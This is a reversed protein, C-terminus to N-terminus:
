ELELVKRIDLLEARREKGVAPYELKMKELSQYILLAVLLRCYPKQDAPVVYWPAWPTSTHSFCDEYAEMYQDWLLRNKADAPSFKWNKAPEDIRALFRQRQEEKSVNLFIKLVVIGNESLYKEFNNIQEFRRQWIKRGKVEPPLQQKEPKVRRKGQLRV